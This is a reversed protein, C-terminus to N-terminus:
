PVLSGQTNEMFGGRGGSYRLYQKKSALRNHKTYAGVGHGGRVAFILIM